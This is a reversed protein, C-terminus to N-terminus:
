ALWSCHSLHERIDSQVNERANCIAAAGLHHPRADGYQQVTPHAFLFWVHRSFWANIKFHRANGHLVLIDANINDALNTEPTAENPNCIYKVLQVNWKLPIVQLLLHHQMDAQFPCIQLM